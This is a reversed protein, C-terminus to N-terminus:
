LGWGRLVLRNVPILSFSFYYFVIYIYYPYLLKPWYLLMPGVRSVRWDWVMSYLTLLMMGCSCQSPFLPVKTSRYQSTRCCPPAYTYRRAVLYGRTVRASSMRSLYLVM